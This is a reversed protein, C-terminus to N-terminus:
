LIDLVAEPPRGLRAASDTLVLPREILKPQAALAALITATDADRTLAAPRAAEKWRVLSAAPQDLLALAEALEAVSPPDTLYLRVEPTLGRAELLALTERSKSCRPNHWITLAM